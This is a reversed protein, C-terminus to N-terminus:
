REGREERALRRWERFSGFAAIASVGFGVGALVLKTGTTPAMWSALALFWGVAGLVLLTKVLPSM